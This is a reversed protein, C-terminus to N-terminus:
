SRKAYQQNQRGPPPSADIKVGLMLAARVFAIREAEEQAPARPQGPRNLPVAGLSERTMTRGDSTTVTIRSTVIAHTDSERSKVVHYDWSASHKATLADLYTAMDTWAVPARSPGGTDNGRNNNGRNNGPPQQPQSRLFRSPIPANLDRKLAEFSGQPLGDTTQSQEEQCPQPSEWAQPSQGPDSRNETEPQLQVPNPGTPGAPNERTHPQNPSEGQEEPQKDEHDPGTGHTPSAPQDEAGDPTLQEQHPGPDELTEWPFDTDTLEPVQQDHHYPNAGNSADHDQM